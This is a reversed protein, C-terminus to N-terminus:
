SAAKAALAAEVADLMPQSDPRVGSPFYGIPQGDRGILYKHFNWRPASEAGLEAKLWQYLPHADPGKVHQKRTMPFNIHFNTECFDKIETASGPEQGGFDNSPVGLVILGRERYKDWLAQLGDYQPTFGCFSATNVVLLAKGRYQALPLAHGEIAQFEFAYVSKAPEAARPAGPLGIAMALTLAFMLLSLPKLISQM